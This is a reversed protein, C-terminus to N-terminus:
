KLGLIYLVLKDLKKILDQNNGQILLCNDQYNVIINDSQKFQIIKVSSTADQCTKLPKESCSPIDESCAQVLSPSIFPILNGLFESQAEQTNEQPNNTIYIKQASNLDNLTIITPNNPLSEPSYKLSVQQNSIITVWRDDINKFKLDKYKITKVSSSQVSIFGLVSSIMLFIIFLSIIIKPRNSEKKM